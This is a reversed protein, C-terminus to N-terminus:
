FLPTSRPRGLRKKLRLADCVHRESIDRLLQAPTREFTVDVDFYLIPTVDRSLSIGLATAEAPALALLGCYAYLKGAPQAREALDRFRALADRQALLMRYADGQPDTRMGRPAFIETFNLIRRADDLTLPPEFPEFAIDHAGPFVPVRSVPRAEPLPGISPGSCAWAPMLALMVVVPILARRMVDSKSVPCCARVRGVTLCM